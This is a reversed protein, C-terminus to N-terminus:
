FGEDEILAPVAPLHRAGALPGDSTSLYLTM